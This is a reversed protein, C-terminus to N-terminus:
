IETGFKRTSYNGATRIISTLKMFHDQLVSLKKFDQFLAFIYLLRSDWKEYMVILFAKKIILM